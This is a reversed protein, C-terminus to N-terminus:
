FCWSATSKNLHDLMQHDTGTMKRKVRSTTHPIHVFPLTTSKNHKVVHLQTSRFTASYLFVAGLTSRVAHDLIVIFFGVHKVLQSIVVLQTNHTTKPALFRPYMWGGIAPLRRQPTAPTDDAEMVLTQWCFADIDVNIHKEYWQSIKKRVCVGFHQILVTQDPLRSVPFLPLDFSAIKQVSSCRIVRNYSCQLSIPHATSQLWLM